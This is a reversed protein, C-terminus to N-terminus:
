RGNGISEIVKKNLDDIGTMAKQAQEFRRQADILTVMSNMMNTNSREVSRRVLISNIDPVDEIKDENFIFNNNGVKALDNADATVLGIKSAYDGKKMSIAAGGSDLVKFGNNTVLFNNLVKFSGDRTLQIDGNELEVKFYTDTQSIAFDLENGTPTIAGVRSNIFHHDIKPVTDMIYSEKNQLDSLKDNKLYKSFSGEAVGDEKFGVTTSNAINNSVLEVRNLQNIMNAALPFMGQNM